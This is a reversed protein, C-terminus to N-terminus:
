RDRRKTMEGLARDVPKALLEGARKGDINVGMGDLAKKTEGAFERAIQKYDVEPYSQNERERPQSALAYIGQLHTYSVPRYHGITRKSKGEVLKTSLFQQLIRENSNDRIMVEHSDQDVKYSYLIIDLVQRKYVDPPM